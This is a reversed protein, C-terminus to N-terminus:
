ALTKRGGSPRGAAAFLGVGRARLSRAQARTGRARALGCFDAPTRLQEFFTRGTGTVFSRIEGLADTAPFRPSRESFTPVVEDSPIYLPQIFAVLYFSTQDYSSGQFSLGRLLDAIPVEFVLGTAVAFDPLLTRLQERALKDFESTRMASRCQSGWNFGVGSFQFPYPLEGPGAHPFTVRLRLM